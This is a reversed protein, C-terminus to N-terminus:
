SSIAGFIQISKDSLNQIINSHVRYQEIIDKRYAVTLDVTSVVINTDKYPMDEIVPQGRIFEAGIYEQGIEIIVHQLDQTTL